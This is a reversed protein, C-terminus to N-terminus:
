NRLYYAISLAHQYSFVIKLILYSYVNHSEMFELVSTKGFTHRDTRRYAISSLFSRLRDGVFEFRVDVLGNYM